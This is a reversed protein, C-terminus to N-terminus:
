NRCKRLKDTIRRSDEQTRRPDRTFLRDKDDDHAKFPKKMQQEADEWSTYHGTTMFENEIFVRREHNHKMDDTIVFLMVIEKICKFLLEM